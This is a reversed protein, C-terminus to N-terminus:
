DGDKPAEDLRGCDDAVRDLVGNVFAGSDEHGFRKALEVAEDIIVPRPVDPQHLLEWTGLRLVNRDVRMMREVRWNNSAAAIREDIAKKDADIGTVLADAYSRGEADAPFERWFDQIVRKAPHGGAEMAFLM